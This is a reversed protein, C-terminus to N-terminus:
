NCDRFLPVEALSNHLATEQRKNEGFMIDKWLIENKFCTALFIYVNLLSEM